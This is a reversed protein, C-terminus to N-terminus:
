CGSYRSWLASYRLYRGSIAFAIKWLEHNLVNGKVSPNVYEATRGSCASFLKDYWM